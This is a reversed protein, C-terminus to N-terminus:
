LLRLHVLTDRKSKGFSSAFHIYRNCLTFDIFAKCVTWGGGHSDMDCWVVTPAGTGIQVPYTGSLTCGRSQVDM